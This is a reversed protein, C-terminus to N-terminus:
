FAFEVSIFQLGDWKQHYIVAFLGVLTWKYDLQNPIRMFHFTSLSTRDVGNENQSSETLM